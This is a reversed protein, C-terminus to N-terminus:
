RCSACYTAFLWDQSYFDAQESYGDPNVRLGVGAETFSPVRKAEMSTTHFINEPAPLAQPQFWEEPKLDLTTLLDALTKYSIRVHPNTEAGVDVTPTQEVSSSSEHSPNDVTVKNNERMWM